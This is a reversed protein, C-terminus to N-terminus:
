LTTNTEATCYRSDAIYIDGREQAEREGRSTLVSCALSGTSVAAGWWSGIECMATSIHCNREWNMGVEGEGSQTWM